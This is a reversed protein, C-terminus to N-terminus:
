WYPFMSERGRKGKEFFPCNEPKLEEASQVQATRTHGTVLAYDCNNMMANTLSSYRCKRCRPNRWLTHERREEATRM